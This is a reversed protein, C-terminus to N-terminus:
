RELRWQARLSKKQLETVADHMSKFIRPQDDEDTLAVGDLGVIL